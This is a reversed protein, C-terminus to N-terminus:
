SACCHCRCGSKNAIWAPALFLGPMANAIARKNRALYQSQVASTIKQGCATIFASFRGAEDPKVKGAMQTAEAQLETSKAQVAPLKTNDGAEMAKYAAVYDDAFQAYSKVFLYWQLCELM